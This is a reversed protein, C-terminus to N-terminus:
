GERALRYIYALIEAVAKYLAIPIEAGVECSKYLAAALPPNEVIPVGHQEAVRRIREAMYNRGKATVLPAPMTELHYELAVAYHTPNTIVVSAKPVRSMMRRRVFERQMRRLRAKILPNGELDKQEERVEQRTMRLKRRLTWRQRFFDWAGLALLVLAAKWLLSELTQAVAAVGAPVPQWPLRLFVEANGRVVTWCVWAFLPFLWLAKVTERMNQGPMEQLRSAPSLRSWDLRLRKPSLAFGTQLAHSLLSTGVLAAALYGAAALPGRLAEVALGGLGAAEVEGRWAQRWFGRFCQKLGELLSYGSWNLVLVAVVLQAAQTLDRSVAVQGEKRAKELRRPTPQETRQSQDSM